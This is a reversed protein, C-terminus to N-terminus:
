KKSFREALEIWFEAIRVIPNVQKDACGGIFAGLWILGAVLLTRWFNITLLLVAFVAACAGGIVAYKHREIFERM